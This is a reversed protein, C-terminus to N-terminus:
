AVIPPPFPALVPASPPCAGWGEADTDSDVEGEEAALQHISQNLAHALEQRVSTDLPNLANARDRLLSHVNDEDARWLHLQLKLLRRLHRVELRKAHHVYDEWESARASWYRLRDHGRMAALPRRRETIGTPRHRFQRRRAATDFYSEWDERKLVDEWPTWTVLLTPTAGASRLAIATLAKAWQRQHRPFTHPELGKVNSGM